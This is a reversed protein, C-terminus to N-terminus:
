KRWKPSCPLPDLSCVKSYKCCKFFPTMRVLGVNYDWMVTYENADDPVKFKYQFVAHPDDAGSYWARTNCVSNPPIKPTNQQGEFSERGTKDFFNKKGSNYPIHRCSEHISRFPYIQYKRIERLSAEDLKDLNEFPAYNVTGKVRSKVFGSNDKTMKSQKSSSSVHREFM